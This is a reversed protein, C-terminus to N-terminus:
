FTCVRIQLAEDKEGTKLINVAFMDLNAQIIKKLFSSQM